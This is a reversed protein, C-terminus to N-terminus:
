NIIASIEASIGVGNTLKLNAGAALLCEVVILKNKSSALILATKRTKGYRPTLDAGAAILRDVVAVDGHAVAAALTSVGDRIQNIDVSPERLLRERKALDGQHAALILPPFNHPNVADAGSNKNRASTTETVPKEESAPAPEVHSSTQNSSDRLAPPRPQFAFPGLFTM